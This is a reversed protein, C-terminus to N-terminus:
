SKRRASPKKTSKAAISKAPKTSKARRPKGASPQAEQMEQSRTLQLQRVRALILLPAIMTQIYDEFDDNGAHNLDIGIANLPAAIAKSLEVELARTRADVDAPPTPDTLMFREVLTGVPAVWSPVDARDEEFPKMVFSLGKIAENMQTIRETPNPVQLTKYVLNRVRIADYNGAASASMRQATEGSETPEGVGEVLWQLRVRAVQAAAELFPLSPARVGNLYGDLSGVTAGKIRTKHQTAFDELLALFHNNGRKRGDSPIHAIAWALRGALTGM